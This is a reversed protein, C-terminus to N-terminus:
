RISRGVWWRGQSDPEVWSARALLFKGIDALNLRDDHLARIIGEPYVRIKM